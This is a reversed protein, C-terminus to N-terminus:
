MRMNSLALFCVGVGLLTFGVALGVGLAFGRHTRSAATIIATLLLGVWLVGVYPIKITLIGLVAYAGFGVAARTVVASRSGPQQAPPDYPPPLDPPPPPPTDM